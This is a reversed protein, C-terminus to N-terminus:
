PPVIHWLRIKQPFLQSSNTPSPIKILKTNATLSKVLKLTEFPQPEALVCVFFVNSGIFQVLRPAPATFIKLNIIKLYPPVIHWPKIKRAKFRYGPSCQLSEPPLNKSQQNKVLNCRQIVFLGPKRLDTLLYAYFTSQNDYSSPTPGTSLLGEM